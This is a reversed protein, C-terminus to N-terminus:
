FRHIPRPRTVHHPAGERPHDSTRHNQNPAPTSASTRSPIGMNLATWSSDSDVARTGTATPPDISMLQNAVAGTLHQSRQLGLDPDM